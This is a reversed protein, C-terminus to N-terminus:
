ACAAASCAVSELLRCHSASRVEDTDCPIGSHMRSTNELPPMPLQKCLMLGCQAIWKELEAAGILLFPRELLIREGKTALASSNCLSTSQVKHIERTAVIGLGKGDIPRVEAGLLAESM